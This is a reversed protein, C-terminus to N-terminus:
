GLKDGTGPAGSLLQRQDFTELLVHILASKVLAAPLKKPPSACPLRKGWGWRPEPVM